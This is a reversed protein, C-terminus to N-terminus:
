YTKLLKMNNYGGATLSNYKVEQFQPYTLNGVNVDRNPKGFFAISFREPIRAEDDEPDTGIPMTVRHPLAWLYGGTWRQFCDGLQVLCEQQCSEIGVYKGSAPHRGELGGTADQFLLTVSGFDTHDAIRTKGNKFAGVTTAPYHLLRMEHHSKHHLPIFFEKPLGLGMALARLIHHKVHELAEYRSEMLGRFHPIHEDKPWLNPFHRDEPSGM